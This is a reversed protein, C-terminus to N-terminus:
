YGRVCDAEKIKFARKVFFSLFSDSDEGVLIVEATM